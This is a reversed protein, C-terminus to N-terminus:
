KQGMGALVPATEPSTGPEPAAAPSAVAAASPTSGPVTPDVAFASPCHLVSVLKADLQRDVFDWSIFPSKGTAQVTLMGAEANWVYHIRCGSHHFDGVPPVVATGDTTKPAGCDRAIEAWQAATAQYSLIRGCNVGPTLTVEVRFIYALGALRAIALPPVEFTVPLFLCQCRM